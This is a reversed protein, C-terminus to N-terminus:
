ICVSSMYEPVLPDTGVVIEATGNGRRGAPHIYMYAWLKSHYSFASPHIVVNKEAWEELRGSNEPHHNVRPTYWVLGMLKTSNSLQRTTCEM